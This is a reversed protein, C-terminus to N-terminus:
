RHAPAHVGVPAHGVHAPPVTPYSRVPSTVPGRSPGIGPHVAGSGVGWPVGIPRYTHLGGPSGVRVPWGGRTPWGYVGGYAYGVYPPFYISNLMSQYSSWFSLGYPSNMGLPSIVGQPFYSYGGVALGDADFQSPDDTIEAATANDAAVAQSRNMAWTKFSDGDVGTSRETLLVAALPLSEGEKVKVPDKGDRASVEVEGKYVQVLPPAADIRYVGQQPMRVQWNQRILKVSTDTGAENSELIASGRLLEVQTDSLKNSLMRIASNEAVRLLVNPTLIVEARGQETRLERGEGIEPFKGFRQELREDGISVAGTFFYVVGSHTSVVSQGAAPSWAALTLLAVGVIQVNAM